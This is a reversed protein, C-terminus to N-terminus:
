NEELIRSFRYRIEDFLLAASLGLLLLTPLWVIARAAIGEFDFPGFSARFQVDTDGTFMTMVVWFQYGMMVAAIVGCISSLLRAAHASFWITLTGILVVATLIINFPHLPQVARGSSLNWIWAFLLLLWVARLIYKGIKRM